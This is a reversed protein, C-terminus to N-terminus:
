RHSAMASQTAMCPHPSWGTGMLPLALGFAVGGALRGLRRTLGPELASYLVGWLAAWFALSASGPVGLPPVPALSFPLTPLLGAAYLLTGYSGQLVFHSAVGAAFGILLRNLDNSM